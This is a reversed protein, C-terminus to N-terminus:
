TLSSELQTIMDVFYDKTAQPVSPSNMMNANEARITKLEKASSCGVLARRYADAWTKIAADVTAEAQRVAPATIAPEFTTNQQEIDEHTNLMLAQALVMKKAYSMAKGPGKDSPDVGYGFGLFELREEPKDVNTFVGNIEVMTRNGEQSHAKVYPQFHIGQATLLRAAEHTVADHSIYGGRLFKAGDSGADPKVKEIAKAAAQARIMRVHINAERDWELQQPPGNAGDAVAMGGPEGAASVAVARGSGDGNDMDAGSDASRINRTRAIRGNGLGSAPQAMDTGTAM